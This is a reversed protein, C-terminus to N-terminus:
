NRFLTDRFKEKDKGPLDKLVKGAQFFIRKSKPKGTCVHYM